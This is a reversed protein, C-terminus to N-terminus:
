FYLAMRTPNAKSNSAKPFIFIYIKVILPM